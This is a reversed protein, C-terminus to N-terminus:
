VVGTGKGISFGHAQLIANAKVRKETTSDIGVQSARMCIADYGAESALQAVSNLDMIPNEKSLFGEAIRVSLSLKM